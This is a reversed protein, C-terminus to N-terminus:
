LNERVQELLSSFFPSASVFQAVSCQVPASARASRSASEARSFDHGTASGGRPSNQGRTRPPAATCLKETFPSIRRM